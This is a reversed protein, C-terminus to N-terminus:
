LDLAKLNPFQELDITSHEVPMDIVIASTLKALDTFDHLVRELDPVSQAVIQVIYEDEGMVHYCAIVEPLAQAIERIQNIDDKGQVNLIRTISMIPLGLAEYNVEARYAKIISADELRRIREQVAPSSLGVRRGIEAYSLRAEEQLERLIAWDTNDLKIPM